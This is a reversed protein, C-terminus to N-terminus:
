MAIAPGGFSITVRMTTGLVAEPEAAHLLEADTTTFELGAFDSAPCGSVLKPFGGLIRVIEAGLESATHPVNRWKVEVEAPALDLVHQVNPPAAGVGFLILGGNETMKAGSFNPSHVGTSLLRELYNDAQEAASPDQVPRM